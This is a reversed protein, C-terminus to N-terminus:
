KCPDGEMAEGGATGLRGVDASHGGERVVGERNLKAEKRSRRQGQVETQIRDLM